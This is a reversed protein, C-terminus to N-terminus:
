GPEGTSGPATAGPGEVAPGDPEDAALSGWEHAAGAPRAPGSYSPLDTRATRVDHITGPDGLDLLRVPADIAALAEEVSREATGEPARVVAVPLLVPWGVRGDYMPRLVAQRTVGHAEILSTLTEPDVWAYATPWVMVADTESVERVAAEVGGVVDGPPVLTAPADALAAALRGVPDAVSVIVPVAGGAWAADVVRRLLPRGDIPTLAEEASAPLLLAAVTM